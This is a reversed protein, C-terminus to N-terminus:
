GVAPLIFRALSPPRAVFGCVVLTNITIERKMIAHDENMVRTCRTRLAAHTHNSVKKFTFFRTILRKSRTSSNNTFLYKILNFIEM